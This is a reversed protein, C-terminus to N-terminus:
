GYSAETEAEPMAFLMDVADEAGLSNGTSMAAGIILLLPALNVTVQGCQQTIRDM